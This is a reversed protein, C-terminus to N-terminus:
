PSLEAQIRSIRVLGEVPGGGPLTYVSPVSLLSLSIFSQTLFSVSNSLGDVDELLSLFYSTDHPIRM